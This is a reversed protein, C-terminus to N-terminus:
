IWLGSPSCLLCSFVMSYIYILTKRSSNEFKYIRKNRTFLYKKM